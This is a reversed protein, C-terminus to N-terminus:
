INKITVIGTEVKLTEGVNTWSLLIKNDALKAIVPFGSSRKPSIETLTFHESQEGKTDIIAAKIVATKDTQEMWTVLTKDGDIWNIAVRGLPDGDDIQLAENFTEGSNNSFAVKVQPTKGNMTFWAVAVNEGDAAVAPGNVPCGGIKWNDEVVRKPVTWEGNVKRVISIDRIEEELRDRYVVIEGKATMAADTQCCDCVKTDLEAEATLEGQANFSATRLTMAGGGHGHGHDDHGEAEHGEGKTNRGDLWTAFIQNDATSVMTVFGHEAAIGDTHPVFAESWSKGGDLSQAIKVDYDYTGAARKQLWHAALRGDEAEAISPFDAWNVFWDTGEAITNAESWHDKQWAAYKFVALSDNPLEVWSLYTKGLKSTFLNSMGSKEAAPNDLTQLEINFTKPTAKGEKSTTSPQCSWLTIAVLCYATIQLFHINKIKNM